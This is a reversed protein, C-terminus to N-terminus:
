VLDRPIRTVTTREFLDEDDDGAVITDTLVFEEATATMESRTSVFVRWGPRIADWRRECAERAALPDDDDIVWTDQAVSRIITDSELIRSISYEFDTTTVRLTSTIPDADSMIERDSVISRWRTPPDYLERPLPEAM